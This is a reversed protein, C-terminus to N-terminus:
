RGSKSRSGGVKSRGYNAPNRQKKKKPAPLSGHLGPVWDQGQKQFSVIRGCIGCKGSAVAESYDVRSSPDKKLSGPCYKALM